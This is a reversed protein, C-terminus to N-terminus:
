ARSNLSGLRKRAFVAFVGLLAAALGFWTLAYELHHNRLTLQTQGGRPWGESAPTADADVYFPALRDLGRARGMDDLDRVWWAERAPDNEPMFLGRTEPARVLGTVHAQPPKSRLSALAADRLEAPAFGLNVMVHSGDALKLPAFFYFGQTAQRARLEALGNLAILRDPLLTGELRVHRFEDDAARWRPWGSEPVIAGPAEHARTEIQRLLEEKWAKRELQWFGLSLLIALAALTAALPAALVRIAGPRSPPPTM